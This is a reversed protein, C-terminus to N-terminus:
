KCDGPCWRHDCKTCLPGDEGAEYETLKGRLLGLTSPDGDIVDQDISRGAEEAMAEMLGKRGAIIEKMTSRRAAKISMRIGAEEEGIEETLLDIADRQAMQARMVADQFKWEWAAWWVRFANWSAICGALIVPAGWALGFRQAVDAGIMGMAFATGITIKLHSKPDIKLKSM